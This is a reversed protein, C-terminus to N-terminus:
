HPSKDLGAAERFAEDAQWREKRHTHRAIKGEVRALEVRAAQEYEKPMQGAERALLKDLALKVVKLTIPAAM